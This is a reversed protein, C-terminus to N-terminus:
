SCVTCTTRMLKNIMMKRDVLDMILDQHNCCTHSRLLHSQMYVLFNFDIFSEMHRHLLVFVLKRVTSSLIRLIMSVFLQMYRSM